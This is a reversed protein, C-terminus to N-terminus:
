KRAERWARMKDGVFSRVYWSSQIPHALCYMVQVKCNPAFYVHTDRAFDKYTISIKASTPVSSTADVYLMGNKGSQHSLEISVDPNDSLVVPETELEIPYNYADRPVLVLRAPNRGAQAFANSVILGTNEEDLPREKVEPFLLPYHKIREQPLSAPEYVKPLYRVFEGDKRAQLGWKKVRDSKWVLNKLVSDTIQHDIFYEADKSVEFAEEDFLAIVENKGKGEVVVSLIGDKDALRVKKGSMTRGSRLVIRTPEFSEPLRDAYGDSALAQPNNTGDGYFYRSGDLVFPVIWYGDKEARTGRYPDEFEDSYLRIDDIFIEGASQRIRVRYKSTTIWWAHENEDRYDSGGYVTLQGSGLDRQYADSFDKSTLVVHGRDEDQWQRIYALQRFFEERHLETMSNELGILAFTYPNTKQDHAQLFLKKFYDIDLKGRAYDNPQSTFANTIDGYNNIPDTITQRVILPMGLKNGAGKSGGSGESSPVMLWARSPMYPYHPPGGYLTYSDTHMQERTIQHVRVQYREALYNASWSDIMWAVTTSPYSKFTQFYKQMYTDIIKKREEQTYGVLYAHRARFWSEDTGSYSVGSTTALSPTIELFAGIESSPSSLLIRQLEAVHSADAFVDFRVAFTGPLGSRVHALRFEQTASVSGPDCCESGRIQNIIVTYSNQRADVITPSALFFMLVGVCLSLQSLM